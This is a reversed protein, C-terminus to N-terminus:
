FDTEVLQGAKPPLKSECLGTSIGAKAIMIGYLMRQTEAPNRGKAFHRGQKKPPLTPVMIIPKAIMIGYNQRTDLFDWFEAWIKSFFWM